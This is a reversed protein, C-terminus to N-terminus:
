KIKQLAERVVKDTDVSHVKRVEAQRGHFEAEIKKRDNPDKFRKYDMIVNDLKRNLEYDGRQAGKTRSLGKLRDLHRRVDRDVKVRLDYEHM